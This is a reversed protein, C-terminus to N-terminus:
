RIQVKQFIDRYKQLILEWRFYKLVYNRGQQGLQVATERNTFLYNLTAAFEEYNGFYLGGNALQCHRRTVACGAHVLVPTGAVWSEMVVISFSEHVSPMCFVDAGAFADQKEQESVFGLDVINARPPIATDGSGILILRANSQEEQVYRQWYSLLLPTNKGAERRGAYLLLPTDGLQHRQRFRGGDGTFETQIGCGIVERLQHTAKGLFRDALDIEVDSLFILGGAQSLAQRYVPLRLYSEDHLCPIVLSREPCVQVGQFTTTFMYPIFIFLYEQAHAAMFEYLAPARIMEEIFTHNEDLTVPLKNMLRWNVKDFASKNRPQVLFRHVSIGNVQDIGPKHFNRGWDDYFDRICTTLVEVPYGASKLKEATTRALTESGGPIKAGYWPTVFALKNATISPFSGFSSHYIQSSM